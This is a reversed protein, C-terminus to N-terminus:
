GQQETEGLWEHIRKGEHNEVNRTIVNSVPEIDCELDLARPVTFWFTTAVNAVSEFGIEGGMLEVLQRTISLGLGTGGKQRADSSDTQSFPEFINLLFSDPIGPGNDAVSYRVVAGANDITLTLQGNHPAYKLANSLLNNLVQALRGKDVSVRANVSRDTLTVTLNKSQMYHQIQEVASAFLDYASHSDLDLVIVGSTIAEFDLIDNVLNLLRETNATAIELLRRSSSDLIVDKRVAMLGLAGRISTLPTRLEHSVTAVFQAKLLEVEKKHTVDYIQLINVNTESPCNEMASVTVLGWRICGDINKIRHEGQYTERYNDRILTLIKKSCNTDLIDNLKLNKLDGIDQGTLKALADNVDILNQNDDLVAVGIPGQGLEEMYFRTRLAARELSVDTQVGIMKLAKGNQDREIVVASSRMWRWEDEGFHVRFDSVSNIKAGSICDQDAVKLLRLDNFHVKSEFYAQTEPLEAESPAGMLNRWSQSVSATGKVCDIEFIGIKSNLLAVNLDLGTMDNLRTIQSKEASDRLLDSQRELGTIINRVIWVLITKVTVHV